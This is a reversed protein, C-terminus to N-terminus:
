LIPAALARRPMRWGDREWAALTREFAARLHRVAREAEATGAASELAAAALAVSEATVAAASGKFSHALRRLGDADEGSALAGTIRQLTEGGSAAFVEILELAFDRDNGTLELFRGADFAQETSATEGPAHADACLLKQLTERLRLPDIPKTLYDDMEAALCKARDTALAHATLAIVPIRPNRAGGTASRLRRTAEYGDMVPM